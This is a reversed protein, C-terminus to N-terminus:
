SSFFYFNEKGNEELTGGNMEKSSLGSTKLTGYFNSHSLEITPNVMSSQESRRLATFLTAVLPIALM